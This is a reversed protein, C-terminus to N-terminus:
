NREGATVGDRGLSGVLAPHADSRSVLAYLLDSTRDIAAVSLRDRSDHESHLRRPFSDGSFARLTLTPIGRAMFSRGDTLVGPPLERASLVAGRLERATDNVFAVIPEPSRYRTLAFGDEPIYALEDSAGVSELNFVALSEDTDLTEAYARSGLTREEEAALFVLKVTTAADAPRAELRQSFRLLAAVSGGNDIAGPSPTRVLPGVTQFWFMAAFPLMALVAVPITVLRPLDPRERRYRRRWLGLVALLLAVGTAPGQRFGWTGWSFHDGFHTTTDYHASFILTPGGAVGAFTGVVNRETLPLLGSVPSLQFEFELLLMLGTTLILALALGYRQTAIAAIYGLALLLAATWALQFGHPTAVFENFTVDAGSHELTRAIFDAVLELGESGNPRPILIHDLIQDTTM